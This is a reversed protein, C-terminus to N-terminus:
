QKFLEPKYTLMLNVWYPSTSTGRPIGKIYETTETAFYYSFYMQIDFNKDYKYTYNIDLESGLNRNLYSYDGGVPIDYNDHELKFIHYFAMVSHKNTINWKINLYIDILGSNKTNSTLLYYNMWGNYPFRAGYMIDFANYNENDRNGSLYDLGFGVNWKGITYNPSFTFMYASVNQGYPNRGFQYFLNALVKLKEGHYHAHLGTTALSYYTSKTDGKLYSALYASVSLDFTKSAQFKAWAFNFYKIRFGLPEEYVNNDASFNNQNFSTYTNNISSGLHFQFDDKDIVAVMGYGCNFLNILTEKTYKEQMDRTKHIYYFSRLFAAPYAGPELTSSAV